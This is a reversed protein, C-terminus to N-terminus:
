LQPRRKALIASRQAQWRPDRRRLPTVADHSRALSRADTRGDSRQEDDAKRSM